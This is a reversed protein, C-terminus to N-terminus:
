PAHSTWRTQFGATKLVDSLTAEFDPNAGAVHLKFLDRGMSTFSMSPISVKSENSESEITLYRAGVRAVSRFRGPIESTLECVESLTFNILNLEALLNLVPYTVGRREYAERIKHAQQAVTEPGSVFLAGLNSPPYPSVLLVATGDWLAFDCAESFFRAESSTLNRLCDLARLSFSGPTSIEGALLRGWLQQMEESSIEQAASFFRSTWDPDVAVDSVNEPLAKRAEEVVRSLNRQRKVEQYNVRASIQASLGEIEATGVVLGGDALLKNADALAKADRRIVWPRAIAGIGDSVVEILKQIPKSLGAVDEIKM